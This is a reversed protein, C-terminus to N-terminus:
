GIESQLSSGTSALVDNCRSGEGDRFKFRTIVLLVSYRDAVFNKADFFLRVATSASPLAGKGVNEIM